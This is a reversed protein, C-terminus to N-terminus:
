PYLEREGVYVSELEGTKPDYYVDAIKGNSMKYSASGETEGYSRMSKAVKENFAKKIVDYAADSVKIHVEGESLVEPTPTKTPTAKGLGAPKSPLTLKQAEELLKNKGFIGGYEPKGESRLKAQGYSSPPTKGGVVVAPENPYTRGHVPIPRSISGLPGPQPLQLDPKNLFTARSQGQKQLWQAADVLAQPNNVRLDRLAFARAPNPLSQLFDIVTHTGLYGAVGGPIGGVAEGLATGGLKVGMKMAKTGLSEIPARGNLSELFDATNYMNSIYDNIANIDASPASKKAAEEIHEKFARGIQKEAQNSISASPTGSRDYAKYAARKEINARELNIGENYKMKSFKSNVYDRLATQEASGTRIESVNKLARVRLTNIPDPTRSYDIQKLSRDLVEEALAPEKVRFRDATATTDMVKPNADSRLSNPDIGRKALNDAIDHGSKEAKGLVKGTQSKARMGYKEGTQSWAEAAKDIYRGQVKNQIQQPVAKIQGPLAKAGTIVSSVPAVPSKMGPLFAAMVINSADEIDREANPHTEAIKQFAPVSALAPATVKNVLEDQVNQIGTRKMVSGFLSTVPSVAVSALSGLGGLLSQGAGKIGNWTGGKFATDAGRMVGTAFKQPMENVATKVGSYVDKVVGLADMPNVIGGTNLGVPNYAKIGSAVDRSPDTVIPPKPNLQYKNLDLGGGTPAATPLKYQSLDLAM